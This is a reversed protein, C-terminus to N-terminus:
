SQRAGSLADHAAQLEEQMVLLEELAVSLEQRLAANDTQELGQTPLARERLEQLQMETLQRLRTEEKLKATLEENARTLETMREGMDEIVVQAQELEAQLREDVGNTQPPQAERPTM